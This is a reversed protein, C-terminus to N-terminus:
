DLEVGDGKMHKDCFTLFIKELFTQLTLGNIQISEITESSVYSM